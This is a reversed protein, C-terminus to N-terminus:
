IKKKKKQQNFISIHKKLLCDCGACEAECFIHSIMHKYTGYNIIYKQIWKYPCNITKQPQIQHLSKRWSCSSVLAPKGTTSRHNSPSCVALMSLSSLVSSSVFTWFAHMSCFDFYMCVFTCALTFVYTYTFINITVFMHKQTQLCAILTPMTFHNWNFCKKSNVDLCVYKYIQARTSDSKSM